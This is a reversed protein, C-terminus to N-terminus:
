LSGHHFLREWVAEVQMRTLSLEASNDIILHSGARKEDIPLQMRLTKEAEARTIGDRQMLRRIQIDRSIYVLVIMDFRDAAGIEFLLPIDFLVVPCPSLGRLAHWRRDMEKLISPHLIANVAERCRSDGTIKLRLERRKLTGDAEFYEPGLLNRLEQWCATGPEVVERAIRDADLILAGLEAFIRAVTSKGTAIGGTLAIRKPEEPSDSPPTKM